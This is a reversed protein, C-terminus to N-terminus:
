TRDEILRYYPSTTNHENGPLVFVEESWVARDVGPLKKISSLIDVLQESDRYVFDAVIDSNGIHIAVSTIGDMQATKEAISKMNGDALYVHIMGKKLGLKKYNPKYFHQVLEKKLILRTRRQVTSLPVQLKSSIQKNDYGSLLLGVISTDKKDLKSFTYKEDELKRGTKKINDLDSNTKNKSNNATKKKLVL